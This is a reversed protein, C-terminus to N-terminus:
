GSPTSSLASIRLPLMSMMMTGSYVCIKMTIMQSRIVYFPVPSSCQTCSALSQLHVWGLQWEAADCASLGMNRM